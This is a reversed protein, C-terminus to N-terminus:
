LLILPEIWVLWKLCHLLLMKQSLSYSQKTHVKPKKVKRIRCILSFYFKM